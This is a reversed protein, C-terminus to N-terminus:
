EAVSWEWAASWGCKKCGQDRKRRFRHKAFGKNPAAFVDYVASVSFAILWARRLASPTHKNEVFLDM